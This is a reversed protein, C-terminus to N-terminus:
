KNINEFFEKILKEEDGYCIIHHNGSPNILLEQLNMDVKVKIQTRCLNKESMNQLIIGSMITYKKLDASLRFITVRGLKLEGKIAVGIGSEFHTDFRYSDVMSFPITCHAFVIENKEVDILSPNAQFTPKKTLMSIIYMSLMTMIDGECTATIGKDNLKALGLCGTSKISTLIDFCRLTLGNLQYDKVIGELAQYVMEAKKVEEKDFANDAYNVSPLFSIEKVRSELEKLPIDILDIGLKEKVQNYNPVSAILWDSPKGLVGLRSEKLKKKAYEIQTLTRIRSALYKINGHIIEGKKNNLRLYTMIELSAALSNNGGSTLLYYPEKIKDINKLFLGESGGTQIFILKLDCDYDELEALQLKEGLEQEISLLFEENEITFNDSHQLMSKLTSIKINSMNDLIREKKIM